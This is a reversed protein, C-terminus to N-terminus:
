WLHPADPIKFIQKIINNFNITVLKLKLIWIILLQLGLAFGDSILYFESCPCVEVDYVDCFGLSDFFTVM